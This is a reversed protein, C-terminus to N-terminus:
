PLQCPGTNSVLTDSPYEDSMKVGIMCCIQDMKQKNGSVRGDEFSSLGKNYGAGTPYLFKDLTELLGISIPDRKRGLDHSNLLNIDPNVRFSVVM